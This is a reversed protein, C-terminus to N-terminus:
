GTTMGFAKRIGRYRQNRQRPKAAERVGTRRNIARQLPTQRKHTVYVAKRSSGAKAM